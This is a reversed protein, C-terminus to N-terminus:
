GCGYLRCAYHHRLSKFSILNLRPQNLKISARQRQFMYENRFRRSSKWQDIKPNRFIHTPWRKPLSNLLGMLKSSVKLQRAYSGKLPTITVTNTEPNLDQWRLNFGENFRVGTEKLLLAFVSMKPGLCAILDNVEQTNPVFPLVDVRNYNPKLWQINKYRYFRDLDEVVKAKRNISSSANALYAKVSEPQSLEVYTVVAKLTHVTGRITSDKFGNKKMWFAFAAVESPGTHAM